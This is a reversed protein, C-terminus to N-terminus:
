NSLIKVLVKAYTLNAVRRSDEPTLLIQVEVVRVDVDAAPDSSLVDKKSIQRGVESVTGKLERDFAGSESQITAKQGVRIKGIDSEYVEAVVMM